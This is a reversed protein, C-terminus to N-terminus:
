ELGDLLTKYFLRLFRFTCLWTSTLIFVDIDMKIPAIINPSVLYVVADLSIWIMSAVNWSIAHILYQHFLKELGAGRIFEMTRTKITSLLALLTLLIGALATNVTLSSSLLFAVAKKLEEVSDFLGSKYKFFVLAVALALLIPWYLLYLRKM